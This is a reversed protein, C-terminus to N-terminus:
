HKRREMEDMKERGIIMLISIVILIITAQIILVVVPYSNQANELVLASLGFIICILYIFIVAYEEKLGLNMLRHHFHDRGRYDLWEKFNKIQGNKVRSLTIYIMDFILVGLILLPIGLAMFVGRSSWGGYLAICALLFGLFTSGGDGLYLKAPKFNFLLFGIGCGILISAYLAVDYQELHLTILFFFVAAITVMGTALGDAGDLFNTANVIGLIWIFTIMVAIVNGWLIDPMFSIILGSSMVIISAIIQGFLRVLSPLPSIDDITGLILIISGGFFVSMIEVSWPRHFFLVLVFALYISVGGLLPTGSKPNGPSLYKDVINNKKALVICFPAFFVVLTLGMLLPVAFSLLSPVLHYYRTVTYHYLLYFAISLFIFWLILPKFRGGINGGM